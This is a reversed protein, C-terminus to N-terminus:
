IKKLFYSIIYIIVSILGGGTIGWGAARGKLTALEVSLKAISEEIRQQGEALREQELLVHKSWAEWGNKENPSM